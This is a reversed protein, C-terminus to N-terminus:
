LVPGPLPAPQLAGALVRSRCERELDSLTGETLLRAMQERWADLRSAVTANSVVKGPEAWRGDLLHDAELVWGHMRKVQM